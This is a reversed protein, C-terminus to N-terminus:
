DHGYYGFAVIKEGGPTTYEVVYDEYCQTVREIYGDYTYYGEDQLEDISMSEIDADPDYCQIQVKMQDKTVLTEGSHDYWLEGGVFKDYDSQSCICISHTSSSNTEFVNRRIQIM